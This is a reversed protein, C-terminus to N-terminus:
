KVSNCRATYFNRFDTWKYYPKNDTPIPLTAEEGNLLCKVLIDKSKDKSRYFVLQINAAKCTQWNQYCNKVEYPDEPDHDAGNIGMLVTLPGLCTDHGFRLDSIHDSSGNIVADAKKIIDELVPIMDYQPFFVWSYSGLNSSEWRSVLEEDTVINGMMGEHGINPLSTYLNILDNGLRRAKSPLRETTIFVRLLVKEPLADDNHFQDRNKEYRPRKKPYNHKVPNQRDTPVVGDLTFRSSQERIEIKPNCQVLEQCFASMSIVCRGSLSSIALINGGKKFVEPFNNYMTRAISQHQEWGLQTLESVGTMLEDKVDMFNKYFTEGKTTLLHKEHAITLLTDLDKYLQETWYYRSGHRAYHSIYFPKYGKPAKTLANIVHTPYPYDNGYAKRPDEKLLELASKGQAWTKTALLALFLITLTRKM